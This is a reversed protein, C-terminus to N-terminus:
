VMAQKADLLRTKRPLGSRKKKGRGPILSSFDVNAIDAKKFIYPISPHDNRGCVPFVNEKKLIKTVFYSSTNLTKALASATVHQSTFINIDEQSLLLGLGEENSPKIAPIVGIKVLHSVGHYKLGLFKATEEISLMGRKKDKLCNQLYTTVDKKAFLFRKLGKGKVEECPILRGDCVEQVLVTVDCPIVSLMRAADPFNVKKVKKGAKSLPPIKVRIQNLLADIGQREFLYKASSVQGGLVAGYILPRV